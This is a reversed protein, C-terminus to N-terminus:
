PHAESAPLVRDLMIQMQTGARHWAARTPGRTAPVFWALAAGAALTLLALQRRPKHIHWRMRRILRQTARGAPAGPAVEAEVAPPAPQFDVVPLDQLAEVVPAPTLGTRVPPPESVTEPMYVTPTAGQIAARLAAAFALVDPYRDASQKALGRLIVADIEASLAPVIQSPPVPDTHVVEYLVAIPNEGRFPERGTVLTYAIAALSFQDSRHDIQERLGCAQEPSMYQPTGAVREGETLRPRWSAQSIGFDLVKVFDAVGAGSLLMINEPKLDRHVIGRSHAAHLASATQDIIDAAVPPDLPGASTVRQSLLKGELLEMVLYPVGSDTVNFDFVQVIHPHRLSSTIEAEQRFRTLADNDRVLSRHLLKIAFRGPLRTHAALYVEGCGGEALPRLIRYTGQLVIGISLGGTTPGVLDWPLDSNTEANMEGRM